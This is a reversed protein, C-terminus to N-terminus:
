VFITTLGAGNSIFVTLNAKRGKSENSYYFEALMNDSVPMLDTCRTYAPDTIIHHPLMLQPYLKEIDEM